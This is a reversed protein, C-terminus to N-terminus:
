RTGVPVPQAAGDSRVPVTQCRARWVGRERVPVSSFRFGPGGRIEISRLAATDPWLGDKLALVSGPALSPPTRAFFSLRGGPTHPRVRAEGILDLQPDDLPVLDLPKDDLTLTLGEELAQAQADLYLQVEAPSIGGDHDADMRGREVASAHEYFTLDLTVDIHSAGIAIVARHQIADRLSPHASAKPLGSGVLIGATAWV